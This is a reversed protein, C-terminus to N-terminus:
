ALAEELRVYPVSFDQQGRRRVTAGEAEAIVITEAGPAAGPHAPGQPFTGRLGRRLAAGARRLSTIM